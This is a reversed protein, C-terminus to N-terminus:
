FAHHLVHRSSILNGRHICDNRHLYDLGRLIQSTFNAALEESIQRVDMLDRLTGDDVFKLLQFNLLLCKLSSPISTGDRVFPHLPWPKIFNLRSFHATQVVIKQEWLTKSINCEAWTELNFKKLAYYQERVLKNSYLLIKTVFQVFIQILPESSSIEILKKRVRWQM